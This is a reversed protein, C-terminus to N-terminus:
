DFVPKKINARELLDSADHGDYIRAWYGRPPVDIGFKRCKDTIARDSVGYEQSLALRSQTWVKKCLESPTIATWRLLGGDELQKRPVCDRFAMGATTADQQGMTVGSVLVLTAPTFNDEVWSVRDFTMRAASEISEPIHGHWEVDEGWPPLTIKTGRRWLRMKGNPFIANCVSEFVDGSWDSDVRRTERFEVLAALMLTLRISVRQGHLQKLNEITQQMGFRRRHNAVIREYKGRYVAVGKDVEIYKTNLWFPAGSRFMPRLHGPVGKGPTESFRPQGALHLEVKPVAAIKPQRGAQKSLDSWAQLFEARERNAAM